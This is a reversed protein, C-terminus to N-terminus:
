GGLIPLHKPPPQHINKDIEAHM